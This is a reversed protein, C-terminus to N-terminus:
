TNLLLYTKKMCSRFLTLIEHLGYDLEITVPFQAVNTNLFGSDAKKKGFNDVSDFEQWWIVFGIFHVRLKCKFM